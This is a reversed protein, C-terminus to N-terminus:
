LQDKQMATHIAIQKCAKTFESLEIISDIAANVLPVITCEIFYDIAANVLPMITCKQPTGM